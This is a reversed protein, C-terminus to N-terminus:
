FGVQVSLYTARQKDKIVINGLDAYALTVSVNKTPAWAVFVDAWNNEEFGLKDPKTRLEAGIALDRRLLYAISAELKPKYSGNNFGLIGTQNAKTFRVTGNVLVSTSLFLKTASVYFDTGQAKPIGLANLLQGRNNKKHLLGVSIQPMLSDQELVADGAVRVKLGM